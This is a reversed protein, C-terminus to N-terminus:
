LVSIDKLALRVKIKPLLMVNEEWLVCSVILCHEEMYNMMIHEKLANLQCNLKSLATTDEPALIFNTTRQAKSVTTDLPVYLAVKMSAELETLSELTAVPASQKSVQSAIVEVLVDMISVLREVLLACIDMKVFLALM